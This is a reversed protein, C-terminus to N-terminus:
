GLKQIAAEILAEGEPCCTEFKFRGCSRDFQLDLLAQGHTPCQVKSLEKKSEEFIEQIKDVVGKKINEEYENSM